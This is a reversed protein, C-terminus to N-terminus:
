LQLNWLEDSKKVYGQLFVIAHVCIMGYRREKNVCHYQWDFFLQLDERCSNIGHTSQSSQCDTQGTRQFAR